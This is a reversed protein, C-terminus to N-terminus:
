EVNGVKDWMELIIGFKWGKLGINGVKRKLNKVKKIEGLM